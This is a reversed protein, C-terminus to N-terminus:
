ISIKEQVCSYCGRTIGDYECCGHTGRGGSGTTINNLSIDEKIERIARLRGDTMLGVSILCLTFLYKKRRTGGGEAGPWNM